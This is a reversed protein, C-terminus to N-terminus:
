RVVGYQVLRHRHDLQVGRAVTQRYVSTGVALSAMGSGYSAPIMLLTRLVVTYPTYWPQRDVSTGRSHTPNHVKDLSGTWLWRLVLRHVSPHGVVTYPPGATPTRCTLRRYTATPTRVTYPNVTAFLTRVTYPLHTVSPTRCTYPPIYPLSRLRDTGAGTNNIISRPADAPRRNAHPQPSIPERLRM